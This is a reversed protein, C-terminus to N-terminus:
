SMAAQLGGSAAQLPSRAGTAFPPSGGPVRYGPTPDLNNDETKGDEDLFNKRGSKGQKAAKREEKTEKSEVAKAAAAGSLSPAVSTATM